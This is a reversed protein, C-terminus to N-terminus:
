PLISKIASSQEVEVISSGVQVNVARHLSATVRLSSSEVAPLQKQVVSARPSRSAHHKLPPVVITHTHYMTVYFVSGLGGLLWKSLRTKFLM